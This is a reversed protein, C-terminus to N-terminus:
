AKNYTEEVVGVGANEFKEHTNKSPESHTEGHFAQGEHQAPEQPLYPQHPPEGASGPGYSQQPCHYQDQQYTQQPADGRSAPDYGPQQFYNQEQGYTPQQGYAQQQEWAPQQGYLPQQGYVPQHYGPQPDYVAAQPEYQQYEHAHEHPQPQPQPEMLQMGEEAENEDEVEEQGGEAKGDSKSQKPEAKEAPPNITTQNGGMMNPHVSNTMKVGNHTNGAEKKKMGFKEMTKGAFNVGQMTFKTAAKTATLIGAASLDAAGDTTAMAQRGVTKWGFGRPQEGPRDWLYLGLGEHVYFHKSDPTKFETWGKPLASGSTKVPPLPKAHTKFGTANHTYWIKGAASKRTTWLKSPVAPDLPHVQPDSATVYYSKSHGHSVVVSDSATCRNCFITTVHVTSCILCIYIPEDVQFGTRSLTLLMVGKGTCTSGYEGKKCHNCVQPPQNCLVTNHHQANLPLVLQATGITVPPNMDTGPFPQSATVVAPKQAPSVLPSPTTFTTGPTPIGVSSSMSSHRGNHFSVSQTSSAYSAGHQLQPTFFVTSLHAQQAPTPMTPHSPMQQMPISPPNATSPPYPQVHHQQIQQQQNPNHHSLSQPNHAQQPHQAQLTNLQQWQQGYQNVQPPHAQHNHQLHHPPQVPQAGNIQHPQQVPQSYQQQLHQPGQPYQQQHQQHQQFAQAHQNQPPQQTGQTYQSQSRPVQQPAHAPQNQPSQFAQLLHQQQPLFYGQPQQSPQQEPVHVYQSQQPQQSQQTSPTQQQFQPTSASLAPLQDLLTRSDPDSTDSVSHSRDSPHAVANRAVGKRVVLPSPTPSGVSPQQPYIQQQQQQLSAM